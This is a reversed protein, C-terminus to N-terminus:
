KGAQADGLRAHRSTPWEWRSLGVKGARQRHVRIRHERLQRDIRDIKIFQKASHTGYKIVAFARSKPQGRPVLVHRDAQERNIVRKGKM